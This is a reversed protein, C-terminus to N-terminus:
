LTKYITFLNHIEYRSIGYKNMMYPINQEFLLSNKVDLQRILSKKSQLTSQINRNIM